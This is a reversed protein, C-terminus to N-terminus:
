TQVQQLSLRCVGVRFRNAGRQYYELRCTNDTSKLVGLKTENLVFFRKSYCVSLELDVHVMPLTALTLIQNGCVKFSHDFSCVRRLLSEFQRVVVLLQFQLTM